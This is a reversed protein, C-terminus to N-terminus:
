SRLHVWGCRKLPTEREGDRLSVNKGSTVRGIEFLPVDLRKALRRVAQIKKAPVTVVMEYEEGGCFVLDTLSIRKKEAFTEVDKGTPIVDIVFRKKSLRSMDNLTTSLGDSSDMSSSFYRTARLGFELRPTPLFVSKKCKKVFKPEAKIKGLIIKLGSSSYGFPGSTIIVDGKKAGGRPTIKGTGIGFMSVDIVIEKGKNVDGGVIKVDFERSAQAFGDALDNIMKRTFGQPIALSITAYRPKIGKCAFDSVCSVMSKRAVQHLKMGTPVDTSQVLMDSKVAFNRNAMALIELDEPVFSSKQGFRSQFISIIEVEDPNKM